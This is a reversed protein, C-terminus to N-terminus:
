KKTIIEFLEVSGKMTCLWETFQALSLEEGEDQGHYANAQDELIYILDALDRYGIEALVKKQGSV